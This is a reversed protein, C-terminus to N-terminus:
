LIVLKEEEETHSHYSSHSCSIINDCFIDEKLEEETHSHNHPTFTHSSIPEALSNYQRLNCM